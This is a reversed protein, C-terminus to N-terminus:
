PVPGKPIGSLILADVKAELGLLRRELLVSNELAKRSLDMSQTVQDYMSKGGNPTVQRKLDDVLSTVIRKFAWTFFWGLLGALLTSCVSAVVALVVPTM